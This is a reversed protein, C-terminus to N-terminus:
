CCLKVDNETRYICGKTTLVLNRKEMFLKWDQLVRTSLKDIRVNKLVPLIYRKIIRSSKELIIERVEYKKVPIYEDFLQQVTM